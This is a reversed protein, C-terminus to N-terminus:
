IGRCFNAKSTTNADEEQYKLVPQEYNVLPVVPM